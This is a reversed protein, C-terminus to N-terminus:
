YYAHRFLHTKLERKFINVSNAARCKEPLANWLRPASIEFARGGYSNLRFEPEVLLGKDASRLSRSPIYPQLLQSIYQPANGNVAKYVYLLVKYQVRQEVPLWHLHALIPTISERLPHFTIVRAAYNQVKQIRSILKSPLGNLLVNCYDLKSTVYANVLTETAATTLGRRVRSINRLCYRASKCKANVFAEMNLLKDFMAGLNRVSDAPYIRVSDLELYEIEINNQHKKLTMILFETKDGNLKLLNESMWTKIEAFCNQIRIIINNTSAQDSPRFAIYLQTDDAYIHYSLGYKSAIQGLPITYLTFLLPGLVSGQPVGFPLDHPTSKTGNIYVSQKYVWINSAVICLGM